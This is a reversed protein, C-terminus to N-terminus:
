DTIVGRNRLALTAEAFRLLAGHRLGDRENKSVDFRELWAVATPLGARALAARLLGDDEQRASALLPQLVRHPLEALGLAAALAEDRQPSELHARLVEVTAGDPECGLALLCRVRRPASRADALEALLEDFTTRAQGAFWHRAWKEDDAQRGLAVQDRWADLLLGAVPRGTPSRLAAALVGTLEPQRRLARRIALDLPAGGVRAAVVLAAEADEDPPKPASPGPAALALLRRELGARAAPAARVEDIMADHLAALDPTRDSCGALAAFLADLAREVAPAGPETAALLRRGAARREPASRECDAFRRALEAIPLSAQGPADPLAADGPAAATAPASRLARLRGALGDAVGRPADPRADTDTAAQALPDNSAPAAAVAAARTRPPDSWGLVALCGLLLAVATVQLPERCRQAARPRHRERRRAAAAPDTAALPRGTDAPAMTATAAAAVAAFWRHELAALPAGGAAVHDALARGASSALAADLRRSRRLARQCPACSQLHQELSQESVFGYGCAALTAPDAPQDACHREDRHEGCRQGASDHDGVHGDLCLALVADTRPCAPPERHQTM